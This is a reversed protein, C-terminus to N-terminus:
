VEEGCFTCVYYHSTFLEVKKVEKHKCILAKPTYNSDKWIEADNYDMFSEYNDLEKPNFAQMKYNNVAPCLKINGNKDSM